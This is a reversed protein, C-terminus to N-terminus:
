KKTKRNKWKKTTPETRYILSVSTLKQNCTLIADRDNVVYNLQCKEVRTDYTTTFAVCLITFNSLSAICFVFNITDLKFDVPCDLNARSSFSSTYMYTFKTHHNQMSTVEKTVAVFNPRTRLVNVSGFALTFLGVPICTNLVLRGLESCHRYRTLVFYMTITEYILLLPFAVRGRGEEDARGGRGRLGGTEHEQNVYGGVLKLM